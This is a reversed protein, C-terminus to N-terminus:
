NNILTDLLAALREVYPKDDHYVVYETAKALTAKAEEDKSLRILEKFCAHFDQESRCPVIGPMALVEEVSEYQSMKDPTLWTNKGDGYCIMLCPVGNMAGEVGLTTPPCVVADVSKLLAPYYELETDNVASPVSWDNNAFRKNYFDAVQQDLHVHQFGMDKIHRENARRLMEPHPRFLVVYESYEPCESILRDMSALAAVDDFPMSTAAYLIIKKDKPLGNFVRIDIPSAEGGAHFYRDFRPVGLACVREKPVNQVRIAHNVGQQGWVVVRDPPLPLVGKSVLNDWSNILIVSKVGMRRATYCMDITASDAAISPALVAVPKTRGIIEALEKWNPLLAKVLALVLPYIVPAALLRYLLVWRPRVFELKIRFARSKKAHKYMTITLLRRLLFMRYNPQTVVDYESVGFREIEAPNWYSEKAVVYHLRYQEALREFAGAKIWNRLYNENSILILLAHKDQM